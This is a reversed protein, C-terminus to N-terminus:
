PAVEQRNDEETEGDVQSLVASAADELRDIAALVGAVDTVRNSQPRSASAMQNAVEVCLKKWLPLLSLSETGLRTRLIIGLDNLAEDETRNLIFSSLVRANDDPSSGTLVGFKVASNQELAGPMSPRTAIAATESERWLKRLREPDFLNETKNSM